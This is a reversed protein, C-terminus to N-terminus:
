AMSTRADYVLAAFFCFLLLPPVLTKLEIKEVNM